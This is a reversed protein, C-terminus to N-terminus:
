ETKIKAMVDAPPMAMMEAVKEPHAIKVHEMAANICAEQTEAKAVFGDQIGFDACALTFM